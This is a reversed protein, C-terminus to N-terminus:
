ASRTAPRYPIHALVNRPPHGASGCEFFPEAGSHSPSWGMAIHAIALFLGGSGRREPRAHAVREALHARLARSRQAPDAPRHSLGSVAELVRLGPFPQTRRHLRPACELLCRIRLAAAIGRQGVANELCLHLFPGVVGLHDAREPARGQGALADLVGAGRHLVDDACEGTGALRLLRGLQPGLQAASQGGGQGIGAREHADGQRQLGGATHFLHRVRQAVRHIGEVAAEAGTEGHPRRLHRAIQVRGGRQRRRAM